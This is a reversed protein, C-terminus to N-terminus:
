VLMDVQSLSNRGLRHDGTDTGSANEEENDGKSSHRKRHAATWTQEGTFPNQELGVSVNFRDVVLGIDALQQKLQTLNTELLTRVEPNEANLQAQLHGQKIVLDLDLRGLEPPSIHIRGKQEGGQIMWLMKEVIKPLPEPLAATDKIRNAALSELSEKQTRVASLDSTIGEKVASFKLDISKEKQAAKTEAREMGPKQGSESSRILEAPVSKIKHELSKMQDGASFKLLGDEQQFWKGESLEKGAGNEKQLIELIKERLDTKPQKSERGLILKEMLEKADAELRKISDPEAGEKIALSRAHVATLSELFTKAEQPPVGKERLMRAIEEKIRKQMDEGSAESFEKLLMKLDPDAATKQEANGSTRIEFREVISAALTKVDLGPFIRELAGSLRGLSLEGKRNLSSEIVEKVKDAGLGAAMLAQGLVPIQDAQLSVDENSGSGKGNKQLSALLRDMRISGDKESLSSLLTLIEDRQFGQRELLSVLEPIASKPLKLSGIPLGLRHLMTDLSSLTNGAESGEGATAPSNSKKNPSLLSSRGKATTTKELLSRFLQSEPDAPTSGGAAKDSFMDTLLNLQNVQVM